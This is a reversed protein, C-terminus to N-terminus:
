DIPWDPDNRMVVDLGGLAEAIRDLFDEPWIPLGANVARVDLDRIEDFAERLLERRMKVITALSDLRTNPLFAYVEIQPRKIYRYAEWLLQEQEQLTRLALQKLTRFKVPRSIRGVPSLMTRIQKLSTM